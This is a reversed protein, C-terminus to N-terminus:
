SLYDEDTSDPGEGGQAEQETKRVYLPGPGRHDRGMLETILQYCM